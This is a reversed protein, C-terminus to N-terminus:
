QWRRDGEKEWRRVMIRSQYTRSRERAMVRGDSPNDFERQAASEGFGGRVHRKIAGVTSTEIRQVAEQKEWRLRWSKNGGEDKPDRLFM